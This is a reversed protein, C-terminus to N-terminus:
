PAPVLRATLNERGVTIKEIRVRRKEVEFVPEFPESNLLSAAIKAEITKTDVPVTSIRNAYMKKAIPKALWTINMAGVKVDTVRLDALGDENIKPDLAITVVFEVGKVSVTGMLVVSDPVFLVAPAYLMAGESMVPWGWGAVIENIGKQTIVLEFPEGRQAGNYFQPSLEHTLYPSVQGPEHGFSEVDAPAYRGPTYLLLILVVAVVVLDISLWIVLKKIRTKKLKKSDTRTDPIERKGSIM